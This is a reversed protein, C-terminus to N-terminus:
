CMYLDPDKIDALFQEFQKQTIAEIWSANQKEFIKCSYEAGFPDNIEIWLKREEPSMLNLDVVGLVEFAIEFSEGFYHFQCIGSYTIPGRFVQAHGDESTAWFEAAEGPVGIGLYDQCAVFKKGDGRVFNWRGRQCEDTM